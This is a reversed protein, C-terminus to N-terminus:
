QASLFDCLDDIEKCTKFLTEYPAHLFREQNMQNITEILGDWFGFANLVYIPKDHLNIQRWTLVEFFEALTGLGGPLIVFADSLEAMKKQRTHMDETLHLTTLTKHARERDSLIKPLVGIVEANNKLAADAMRGMMGGQAGGYVIRFGRQAFAEGTAEALDYYRTDLHSSASCFVCVNQVPKNAM